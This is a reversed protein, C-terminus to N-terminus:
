LEEKCSIRAMNRIKQLFMKIYKRSLPIESENDMIIRYKRYSLKRFSSIKNLNVLFSRHARYFTDQLRKELEKLSHNILYDGRKLYIRAYKEEARFYYIDEVSVFFRSTGVSILFNEFYKLRSNVTSELKANQEEIQLKEIKSVAMQLRKLSIPKLLYDVSNTEFAKLAYEDYATTFIILPIREVLKLAEFGDFGPIQIDLFVLDPKLRDITQVAEPGNEAKGVLDINNFSNLQLRLKKLAPKEDEVIVTRYRM